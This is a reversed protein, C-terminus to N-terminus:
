GEIRAAAAETVEAVAIDTRTLDEAKVALMQSQHSLELEISLRQSEPLEKLKHEDLWQQLYRLAHWIHDREVGDLWHRYEDRAFHDVVEEIAYQLQPTLIKRM